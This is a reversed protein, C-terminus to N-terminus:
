DARENRDASPSLDDADLSDFSQGLNIALLRRPDVAELELRM